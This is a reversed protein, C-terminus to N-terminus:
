PKWRIEHRRRVGYEAAHYNGAAAALEGPSSYSGSIDGERLLRRGEEAMHYNGAAAGAQWSEERGCYEQGM